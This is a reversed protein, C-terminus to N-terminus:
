GCGDSDGGVNYKECLQKCIAISHFVERRVTKLATDPKDRLALMVAIVTAFAPDYQISAFMKTSGQLELCLSDLYQPLTEEGTEWMPLIKFIKAILAEFYNGIFGDQGNM